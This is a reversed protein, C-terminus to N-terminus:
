IDRTQGHGMVVLKTTTLAELGMPGRAHLKQTSIGVEAGLGMQFGDTFRTSANWYVAAADVRTLFDMGEGYSNTVIAESHGSGYHAIHKIAEDQNSVVRVAIDLDLYEQSWDEETAPIVGAIRQQTYADGHFVIGERDGLSAMMPLFAHAVEEHVLITELANCVSPNGVKGDRLIKLAMALDAQKDVYLHCNGVGTEIVPVTANAVVSQILSAGGRPILLDLGKLQMLQQAYIREPDEILQILDSSLGLVEKLAKHWLEVIARNSYIAEKGGRLLVANGSKIALSAAEICVGPRSEFILAIVGLPVRTTQVSLGNPLQKVQGQGLVDPLQVLQMLGESLNRLKDRTLQLRKQLPLPLATAAAMDKDNAGLIDDASERIMQEMANLVDNRMKGTSVALQSQARKAKDLMTTLM